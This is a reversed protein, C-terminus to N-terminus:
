PNPISVNPDVKSWNVKSPHNRWARFKVEFDANLQHGLVEKNVKAEGGGADGRDVFLEDNSWTGIPDFATDVANLTTRHSAKLRLAIVESPGEGM